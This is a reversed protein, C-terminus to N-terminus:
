VLVGLLQQAAQVQTATEVVVVVLILLATKVVQEMEMVQMVAAV